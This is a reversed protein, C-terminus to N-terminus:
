ASFLIYGQRFASFWLVSAKFSYHQLLSGLTGQVAFLHFWDIRCSILGSYENSASIKYSASWCKPWRMCYASKNSFVRIIPFISPLLFLSCCLILHNSPMSELSMSSSSSSLRKLRTWSQLGISQLRDSVERWPIRWALISSHTAIGEELPDEQGLSLVWM